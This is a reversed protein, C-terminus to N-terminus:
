KELLNLLKVLIKSLGEITGLLVLSPDSMMYQKLHLGNALVKKPNTAIGKGSM